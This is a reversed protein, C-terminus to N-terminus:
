SPEMNQGVPGGALLTNVKERLESFNVPKHLIASAPMWVADLDRDTFGQPFSDKIGTLMLIPVNKLDKAYHRMERALRLGAESDEPFMVDLIVLDPRRQRMSVLAAEPSLEVHVDLGMGKLVTRAAVAFDSDDDVILVYSM